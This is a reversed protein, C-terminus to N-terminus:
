GKISDGVAWIGFCLIVGVLLIEIAALPTLDIAGTFPHLMLNRILFTVGFSIALLGSAVKLPNM